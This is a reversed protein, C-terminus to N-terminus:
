LVKKLDSILNDIEEKSVHPMIVFRLAPITDTGSIHWGYNDSMEKRIRLVEKKSELPIAVINMLPPIAPKLGISEISKVFYNTNEICNSVNKTYGEKGLTNLVALTAAASTGPRTGAITKQYPKTLYPTQVSLRKSDKESRYVIIGSPITSLGMKHGDISISTVGKVSFDFKDFRGFKSILDEKNKKLFPIVYGGFAADVHLPLRHKLAIEGLEEIPDVTGFETTGAIGVLGQTNSDILSEVSEPDVRFNSDIEAYKLDINLLMSAKKFSFHATKPVIVNLRNNSKLNSYDSYESNSDSYDSFELNSSEPISIMNFLAEINSETGGSTMHGFATKPEPHNLIESIKLILLNEIESTGKFLGPDGLNSVLFKMHASVASPHPITCMSSFVKKFNTDKKFFSEFFCSDFECESLDSHSNSHSHSNFKSNKSKPFDSSDNFM